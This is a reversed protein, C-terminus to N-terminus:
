QDAKAISLVYATLDWLSADDLTRWSPMATGRKGERLAFFVRRPTTRRRWKSSTFDQPPLAFGERREGRGDGNVGHCLACHERFLVRGRERAAASALRDMPVPLDRYAPPLDGDAGKCALTFLGLAMAGRALGRM